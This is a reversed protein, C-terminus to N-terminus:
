TMVECVIGKHEHILDIKVPWEGNYLKKNNFKLKLHSKDM